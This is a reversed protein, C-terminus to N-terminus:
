HQTNTSNLTNNTHHTALVVLKLLVVRQQVVGVRKLLAQGLQGLAVHGVGHKTYHKHATYQLTNNTTALVVLKLLVVRQQVVGVRKLLAQGLQGLAVHGVGHKTYHKHATYQLTNNTIALVVLKLLVVRQQVVGVRKLLAQGLQGLAVHGVGHEQELGGHLVVGGVELYM